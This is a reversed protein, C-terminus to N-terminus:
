WIFKASVQGIRPPRNSTVAGFQGSSFNGIPNTFQTHNFINFFEARVLFSMSEKIRTSKAVGFDTNALGPGYFFRRNSSGITGLAPTAFSTRSFYLNRSSADLNRADMITVPTLVNPMDVASGGILSRDGSTQSITVPLGTTLRTIGSLSWGQTLRRSLGGFARDFPIAWSYSGVLNHKMDFSSLARSLAFNYPNLYENEATSGDISKSYTYAALFTFNAAKRQVTVQMSNYNSNGRTTYFQMKAYYPYPFFPGRTGAVKTGNPLTYFRDEGSPGCTPTAGLANLQLCLAPNGPNGLAETMLHHGQTGVYALTLVMSHSLERQLSLNYHEAYPLVNDPAYGPGLLPYFGSFDYTARSPSDPIPMVFPFRQGLSSGDSRSKFPEAMPPPVPSTYFLGYPADGFVGFNPQDSQSLYYLGFSARISSKGPSGFLKGLIGDTASPAYALGLRPAFRDRQTPYIGRSVGPDGPVVIGVPALKFITSQEGPIWSALKGQTDYWSTSMEWRLGLNLTLNSKVKWADQVFLAGYQSRSDILQISAQIYTNPAGLLFDAYDNGTEIGNFSFSGTPAYINRANLQLFRYEGGIKVSHNGWVKSFGDGLMWTTLPMFLSSQTNGFNFNNLTIKPLVEPYGPPGSSVIGLTTPGTAFGLSSTSVFGNTPIGNHIATRFVSLHLENVAAAGFTKTDNITFMQARTNTLTNFGPYSANLPNNFTTDDFHYYFSWSGATANYYDIRQGAKDDRTNIRQSVDAFLGKTPDTNGLPIYADLKTTIPDWAKRPIVGGPFVCNATSVCNASSYPEGNTVTYGVRQSLTQAWAAGQVGLGISGPNFLGQRQDATPLQKVGTSAGQVQRTGQYDTFWFLKNKWIPGGVAYGFQNRRLEAKFPDFFGRADMKDNRLFEFAAGHLSNTGSKTIANMVGGTFKGYEADFTNTILRFEAVSDLNPVLGAGMNRSENVDGGNVLFANSNERQGSVSVNGPKDLIGATLGVSSIVGSTIPVVGAQLGLLDLFSRGNLPLALMKQGEIVDGLQTSETQVQVANAEVSVLQQINGVTLMADLRLQDNVKLAIDTVTFQQFGGATVTIRYRGPPLVLLRYEGAPDSSKTEKSFNTDVNTAVVRAGVVVAQSSDRVIGLISGSLTQAWAPNSYLLAPLVLLVIRMLRNYRHQM